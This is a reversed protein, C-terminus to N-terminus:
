VGTTARYLYSGLVWLLGSTGCLLELGWVRFSGLVWSIGLNVFCVRFGLHVRFENYGWPGM